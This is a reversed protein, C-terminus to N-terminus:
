SENIGSQNMRSEDTLLENMRSENMREHSMCEHTVWTNTGWENIRSVNVWSEKVRSERMHVDHYGANFWFRLKFKYRLIGLFRLQEIKHIKPICCQSHFTDCPIGNHIYAYHSGTRSKIRSEDGCIFWWMHVHMEAYTCLPIGNSTHM